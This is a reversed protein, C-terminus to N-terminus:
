GPLLLGPEFGQPREYGLLQLTTAAVNALTPRAVSHDISVPYGPAYVYFPVRNLTHSTKSKPRGTADVSIAHTKADLEFMEDCNGHDATVILAGRLKTIV